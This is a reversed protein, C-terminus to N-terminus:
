RLGRKFNKCVKVRRVLFPYFDCLHTRQSHAETADGLYFAATCYTSFSDLVCWDESQAGDQAILDACSWCYDM